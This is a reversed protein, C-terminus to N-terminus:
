TFACFDFFSQGNLTLKSEFVTHWIMIPEYQGASIFTPLFFLAIRYFVTLYFFFVHLIIHVVNRQMFESEKRKECRRKGNEVMKTKPKASQIVHQELNFGFLSSFFCACVCCLFYHYFLRTTCALPIRLLMSCLVYIAIHRDCNQWMWDIQTRMKIGWM